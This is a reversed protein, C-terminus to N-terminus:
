RETPIRPRTLFGRSRQNRSRFTLDDDQIATNGFDEDANTPSNSRLDYNAKDYAPAERITPRVWGLDIDAESAGYGTFHKVNPPDLFQDRNSPGYSGFQGRDAYSANGRDSAPVQRFDGADDRADDSGVSVFIQAGFGGSVYDTRRIPM